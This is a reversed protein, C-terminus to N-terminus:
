HVIYPFCLEAWFLGSLFGDTVSAPRWRGSVAGLSDLSIDTM